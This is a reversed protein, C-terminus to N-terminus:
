RKAKVQEHQLLVGDIVMGYTLQSGHICIAHENDGLNRRALKLAEYLREANWEEQEVRLELGRISASMQDMMEDDRAKQQQRASPPKPAMAKLCRKCTVKEPIETTHEVPWNHRCATNAYYRRKGYVKYSAGQQDKFMHVKLPKNFQDNRMKTKGDLSAPIATAIARRVTVASLAAIADKVFPMGTLTLRM